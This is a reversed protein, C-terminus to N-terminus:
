PNPFYLRSLLFLKDSTVYNTTPSRSNGGTYDYPKLRQQPSPLFSLIPPGAM